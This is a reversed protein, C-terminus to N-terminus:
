DSNKRGTKQIRMKMIKLLGHLPPKRTRSRGASEDGEIATEEIGDGVYAEEEEPSSRHPTSPETAELEEDMDDSHRYLFETASGYGMLQHLQLFPPLKDNREVDTSYSIGLSLGNEDSCSLSDWRSSDNSPLNSIEQGLTADASTEAESTLQEEEIPVFPVGRNRTRFSFMLVKSCAGCQLKCLRRRAIFFDLPLLLLQLCNYCVVFPAGGLVPRCHRKMRRRSGAEEHEIRAKTTPKVSTQHCEGHRCHLCAVHPSRPLHNTLRHPRPVNKAKPPLKEETLHFRGQREESRDFMESIEERLEDAKRLIEMRIHELTDLGDSPSGNQDDYSSSHFEADSSLSSKVPEDNEAELWSQVSHFDQSDLCRDRMVHRDNVACLENQLREHATMKKTREEKHTDTDM